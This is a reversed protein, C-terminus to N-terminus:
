FWTCRSNVISLKGLVSCSYLRNDSLLKFDYCDADYASLIDKQLEEIDMAVVGHLIALFMGTGHLSASLQTSSLVLCCNLPNITGYYKGEGKPYVDLSLIQNQELIGQGFDLSWISDPCSLLGNPKDGPYFGHLVSINWTQPQYIRVLGSLCM